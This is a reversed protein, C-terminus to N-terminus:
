LKFIYSKFKYNKMMYISSSHRSYEIFDSDPVHELIVYKINTIDYAEFRVSKTLM